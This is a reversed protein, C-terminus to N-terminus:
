ADGSGLEVVKNAKLKKFVLVNAPVGTRKIEVRLGVQQGNKVDSVCKQIWSEESLTGSNTVRFALIDDCSEVDAISFWLVIIGRGETAFTTFGYGAKAFVSYGDPTDIVTWDPTTPTEVIAPTSNTSGYDQAFAPVIAIALMAVLFTILSRAHKMFDTDKM